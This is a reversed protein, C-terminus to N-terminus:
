TGPTVILRVIVHEPSIDHAACAEAIVRDTEEQTEGQQVIVRGLFMQAPRHREELRRLRSELNGIM